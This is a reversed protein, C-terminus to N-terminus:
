IHKYLDTSNHDQTVTSCVRITIFKLVMVLPNMQPRIELELYQLKSSLVAM